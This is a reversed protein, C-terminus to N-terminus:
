VGPPEDQGLERVLVDHGLQEVRESGPEGLARAAVRADQTDAEPAAVRRFHRLHLQDPAFVVRARGLLLLLLLFGGLRLGLANALTDPGGRLPHSGLLFFAGGALLTLGLALGPSGGPLARRRPLLASRLRSPSAPRMKLHPGHKVYPAPERRGTNRVSAVIGAM